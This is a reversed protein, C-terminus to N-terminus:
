GRGRAIPQRLITRRRDPATRRFDSLYIEHHRGRLSHGAGVIYDRHMQELVPGEEDFSGIHLTQICLGETLVEFRLRDILPPSKSDGVATITKEVNETTIWEPVRLMMTWIWRSKDRVRTFSDMDDAWWLGELPPVVYDRGFDNKSLFKLAYAAPYLTEVAGTFLPSSNPDGHGDIILYSSPQLDVMAFEGRRARYGPCTKKFDIKDAM